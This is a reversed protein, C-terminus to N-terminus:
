TCTSYLHGLLGVFQPWSHGFRQQGAGSGNTPDWYLQCSSQLRDGEGARCVRPSRMQEKGRFLEYFFKSGDYWTGVIHAYQGSGGTQKKHKYDFNAPMTPAERYNVKPQGLIVNAKYERKIREVYIELHLEGMGRIITENSELDVFVRFTPDEKM